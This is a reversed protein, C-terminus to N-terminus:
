AKRKKAAAIVAPLALLTFTMPEPVVTTYGQELPNAFDNVDVIEYPQSGPEGEGLWNFTVKFGSVSNGKAIPPTGQAWLDFGGFTATAPKPQWVAPDWGAPQHAAAAEIVSYLEPDFLITFEEIGADLGSNVVTYTFTWTNGSVNAPLASIDTMAALGTGCILAFFVCTCLKKM